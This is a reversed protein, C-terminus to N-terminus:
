PTQTFCPLVSFSPAAASESLALISKLESNSKGSKSVSSVKESESKESINLSSPVSLLEFSKSKSVSVVREASSNAFMVVPSISVVSISSLPENSSKEEDRSSSM